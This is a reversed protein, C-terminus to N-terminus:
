HPFYTIPTRCKYDSFGDNDLDNRDDCLGQSCWQSTLCWEGNARTPQCRWESRPKEVANDFDWSDCNRNTDGSGRWSCAQEALYSDDTFDGCGGDAGRLAECKGTTPNCFAGVACDIGVNCNGGVATTGHYANFCATRIAAFDAHGLQCTIAEVK